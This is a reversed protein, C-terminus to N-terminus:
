RGWFAVLQVVAGGVVGEFDSSFVPAFADGVEDLDLPAVVRDDAAFELAVGVDVKVVKVGDRNAEGLGDTGVGLVIYFEKPLIM